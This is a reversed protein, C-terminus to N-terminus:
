PEPVGVGSAPAPHLTGPYSTLPLLSWSRSENVRISRLSTPNCRTCGGQCGGQIRRRVTPNPLQLWQSRSLLPFQSKVEIGRYIHPISKRSQRADIIPPHYLCSFVATPRIHCLYSLLSRTRTKASLNKYFTKLEGRKERFHNTPAPGSPSTTLLATRATAKQGRVGGRVRLIGQTLM